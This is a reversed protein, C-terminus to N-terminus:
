RSFIIFHVIEKFKQAEYWTEIKRFADTGIVFNIKGDVDYLKYLECITLYSYSKGERHFEVDSVEFGLKRELALKVMELRNFSQEMDVVKHPPIFAPVFLIKDFKFNKKIFEGMRIHANHIPNFTGLFVCMKVKAM